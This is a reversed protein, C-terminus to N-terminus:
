DLYKKAIIRVGGDEREKIDLSDMLRAIAPLGSGIGKRQCLIEDESLNRGESFGDKLALEIDSIGPGEDLAEFELGIRNGKLVRFIIMGRKAFKIINTSAESVAIAVNWQDNKLFGLSAAFSKAKNQAFVVDSQTSINIILATNLSPAAQMMM